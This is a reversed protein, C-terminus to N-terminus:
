RCISCCGIASGWRSVMIANAACGRRALPYGDILTAAASGTGPINILIASISGGFMIGVYLSMLVAIANDTPVAFTLPTLLAIGLTANLGPLCGMVIGITMGCVQLILNTPTFLFLFQQGMYGFQSLLQDIFV